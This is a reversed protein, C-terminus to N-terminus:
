SGRKATDLVAYVTISSGDLQTVKVAIEYTVWFGLPKYTWKSGNGGYTGAFTWVEDDTIADAISADDWDAFVRWRVVDDSEMNEMGLWIGEVWFPLTATIGLDTLTHETTVTCAQSTPIKAVDPIADQDMGMSELTRTGGRANWMDMLVPHVM